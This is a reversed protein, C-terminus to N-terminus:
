TDTNPEQILLLQEPIPYNGNKDEHITVYMKREKDSYSIGGYTAVCGSNHLRISRLAMSNFEDCSIRQRPPSSFLYKLFDM